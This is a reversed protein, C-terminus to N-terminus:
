SYMEGIYLVSSEGALQLMTSSSIRTGVDVSMSCTYEGLDSYSINFIVLESEFLNTNNIVTHNNADSIAM